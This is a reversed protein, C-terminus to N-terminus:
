KGDVPSKKFDACGLMKVQSQTEKRTKQGNRLDWNKKMVSSGVM